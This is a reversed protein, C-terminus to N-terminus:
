GIKSCPEISCMTNSTLLILSEKFNMAFYIELLCTWGDLVLLKSSKSPIPSATQINM